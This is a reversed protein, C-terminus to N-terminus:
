QASGDHCSQPTAPSDHRWTPVDCKSCAALALGFAAIALLQFARGGFARRITRMLELILEGEAFVLM